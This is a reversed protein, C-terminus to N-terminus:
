IVVEQLTGNSDLRIRKVKIKIIVYNDDEPGTFYKLKADNWFKKKLEIDTEISAYGYFTVSSMADLYTYVSVKKNDLIQTVKRSLKNTNLYIYESDIGLNVMARTVPYDNEFTTLNVHVSKYFIEIAKENM